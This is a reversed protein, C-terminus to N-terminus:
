LLVGLKPWRSNGNIVTKYFDISDVYKSLQASIPQALWLYFFAPEQESLFPYGRHSSANLYRNGSVKGECLDKVSPCVHMAHGADPASM